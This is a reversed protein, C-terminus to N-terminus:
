EFPLADDDPQETHFEVERLIIEVRIDQDARDPHYHKKASMAFGLAETGSEFYFDNYGITVQYIFNNM